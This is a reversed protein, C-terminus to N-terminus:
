GGKHALSVESTMLSPLILKLEVLKVCAQCHLSSSVVEAVIPYRFQNEAESSLFLMDLGYLIMRTICSFPLKGDACSMEALPM